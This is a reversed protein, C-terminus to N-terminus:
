LDPNNVDPWNRIMQYLEAILRDRTGGELTLVGAPAKVAVIVKRGHEVVTVEGKRALAKLTENM